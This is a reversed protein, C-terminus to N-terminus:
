RAQMGKRRRLQTLDQYQLVSESLCSCFIRQTQFSKKRKQLGQLGKYRQQQDSFYNRFLLQRMAQAFASHKNKIMKWKPQHKDGEMFPSAAGGGSM